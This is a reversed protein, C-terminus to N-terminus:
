DYFNLKSVKQNLSEFNETIDSIMNKLINVKATLAKIESYIVKLDHRETKDKEFAPLLSHLNEFTNQNKKCTLGKRGYIDIIKLDGLIHNPYQHYYSNLAMFYNDIKQYPTKTWDFNFNKQIPSQKKLFVIDVTVKADDFLDDPLRYADILKGNESDIIDRVHKSKNDLFYSPLVMALIGDTKLLRMSKAVFYHHICHEKLDLHNKDEIKNSGYPPNGIILDFKNEPDFNEFGINYLEVAPYLSKFIKSTVSDIEIATIESTNKLEEPMHEIFVGNGVSPELIQGGKFGLIKLYEYIFSVIEKPTYYASSLTKKISLIEDQSLIKKLERYIEPTYIAERLGGWGTYSKLLDRTIDGKKLLSLIEINQQYRATNEM